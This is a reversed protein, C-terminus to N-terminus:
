GAGVNCADNDTRFSGTPTYEQGAPMTYAESGHSHVILVQPGDDTLQAAFSGDSLADADLETGSSNKLYVGNVVTYGKSSTPATTQAPVGNDAFTLGDTLSSAASSPTDPSEPAVPEPPDRTVGASLLAAVTSRGALLLPSQALTMVTVASLSDLGFFDGLEWCCRRSPLRSGQRLQQLAAAASDSGATVAAAWLTLAALLLSLFRRIHIQKM